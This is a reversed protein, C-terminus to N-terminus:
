VEVRELIEQILDKYEQFAKSTSPFDLVTKAYFPSDAIETSQSIFTKLLSEGLIQKLEAYFDKYSTRRVDVQNLLVGIFKTEVKSVNAITKKAFNMAQGIGEVALFEPKAPILYFDSVALGEQVLSSMTPPTDILVFDYKQVIENDRLFQLKSGAVIKEENYKAISENSPILDLNNNINLINGINKNEFLDSSITHNIGDKSKDLYTSVNGQPDLDIILVKFGKNALLSSINVVSTTKGVGGKQCVISIIKM